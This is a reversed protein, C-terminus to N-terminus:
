VLKKIYMFVGFLLLGLVLSEMFFQNETKDQGYKNYSKKFRHGTRFTILSIIIVALVVIKDNEM